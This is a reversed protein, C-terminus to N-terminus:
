DFFLESSVRVTLDGGGTQSDGQETRYTVSGSYLAYERGAITNFCQLMGESVVAHTM